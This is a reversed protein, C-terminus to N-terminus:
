GSGSIEVSRVAAVLEATVTAGPAPGSATRCVYLARGPASLYANVCAGLLLMSFVRFCDGLPLGGRLRRAAVGAVRKAAPAGSACSCRGPLEGRLPPRLSGGPSDAGPASRYTGVSLASFLAVFGPIRRASCTMLPRGGPGAAFAARPSGCRAPRWGSRLGHRAPRRARLRRACRSEFVTRRSGPQARLWWSPCRWRTCRAYRSRFRGFAGLRFGWDDARVSHRAVCAPVSHGCASVPREGRLPPRLSGGPSDAGPASRYTGVSLASFLAVFGPIRRASCTM